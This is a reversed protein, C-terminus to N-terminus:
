KQAPLFRIAFCALVLATHGMDIFRRWVLNFRTTSPLTVSMEAANPLHLNLEIRSNEYGGRILTRAAKDSRINNDQYHPANTTTFDSVLRLARSLNQSM